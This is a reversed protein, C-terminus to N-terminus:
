YHKEGRMGCNPNYPEQGPSMRVREPGEVLALGAKFFANLGIWALALSFLTVGAQTWGTTRDPALSFREMLWFVGSILAIAGANITFYMPREWWRLYPIARRDFHGRIVAAALLVLLFVATGLIQPQM